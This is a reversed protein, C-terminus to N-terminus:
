WTAPADWLHASPSTMPFVLNRMSSDQDNNISFTPFAFGGTNTDLEETLHNFRKVVPAPGVTTQCRSYVVIRCKEKAADVHDIEIGAYYEHPGVWYEVGEPSGYDCFEVDMVDSFVKGVSHTADFNPEQTIPDIYYAALKGYLDDGTHFIYIRDDAYDLAMDIIFDNYIDSFLDTIETVGYLNINTEWPPSGGTYPIHVLYYHPNILSINCGILWIDGNEDCDLACVANLGEPRTDRADFVIGSGDPSYVELKHVHVTTEDPSPTLYRSDSVVLIYGGQPCVDIIIPTAPKYTPGAASMHYYPSLKCLINGTVSGENDADFTGLSYPGAQMVAQGAYPGESLFALAYRPINGSGWLNPITSFGSINVTKNNDIHADAAGCLTVNIVIKDDLTDAAGCPDTVQVDVNFTGQTNYTYKVILGAGDDFAGDGDLDWDFQLDDLESQADYTNSADFTVEDGEGPFLKDATAAALPPTNEPLVVRLGFTTFVPDNYRSNGSDLLGMFWSSGFTESADTCVFWIYDGNPNANGAAPIKAFHFIGSKSTSGPDHLNQAPEAALIDSEVNVEVLDLGQWDWLEIDASFSGCAKGAPDRALNNELNIINGCFPEAVNATTIEFDEMDYPSSGNPWNYSAVVAYNFILFATYEGGFYLEYHRKNISGEQFIGRNQLNSENSFFLAADDELGLGDCFYKYGFWDGTYNGYSDPAGLLGNIYGFPVGTFDTPNMMATWGDANRVEPGFVVGRVDFGTFVKDPTVFPHTLIVDVGIHNNPGDILLTNFDINLNKLPPPELFGTVNLALDCQRLQTISVEGTAKEISVRWVGWLYNDGAPTPTSVDRSGPVMLPSSPTGQGSGCHLGVVLMGALFVAWGIKRLM